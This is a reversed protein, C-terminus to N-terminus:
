AAPSEFLLEPADEEGDVDCLLLDDEGDDEEAPPVELEDLGLEEDEAPAEEDDSRASNSLISM